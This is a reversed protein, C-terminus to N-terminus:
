KDLLDRIVQSACIIGFATPMYSITGVTSRKYNVEEIDMFSGEIIDEASFVVKIGKKIDRRNLRKRLARALKCNHTKSIDTIEVRTPDLKGGAGMSSIIKKEARFAATVFRTKPTLTDIADVVYDYPTFDFEDMMDGTFFQDIVTLKLEPNIDKLRKGLEEAKRNGINSHLAIIQRNINSLDISDGDIITMIGVGSRAIMESAVGGVGGLGMILVHKAKLADMKEKGVLLEARHTWNSM